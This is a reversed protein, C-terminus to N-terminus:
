ERKLNTEGSRQRSFVLAIFLELLRPNGETGHYLRNLESQALDIGAQQLLVASDVLTLGTLAYPLDTAIRSKQGIYLLPVQGRLSELLPILQAHAESENPRLLDVEDFCLLVRHQGLSALDHRLLNLAVGEKGAKIEGRDAVLQSWLASAAQKHLFYALAFLLSRLSDSLGPAFTYWFTAQPAFTHALAQGLTTKGVGGAGSIGVTKGLQLNTLLDTLAEARGVLTAPPMVSELRLAPKVRGIVVQALHEIAYGQNRHYAAESTNLQQILKYVPLRTPSFYSAQLLELWVQGQHWRVYHAVLADAAELLLQQLAQGRLLSDVSATATPRPLREGLFYPSALPSQEGLWAPAHFQELAQKVVKAFAATAQDADATVPDAPPKTKPAM